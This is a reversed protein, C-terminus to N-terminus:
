WLWMGGLAVQSAWEVELVLADVAAVVVLTL